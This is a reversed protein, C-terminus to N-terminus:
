IATARHAASKVPEAANGTTRGTRTTNLVVARMWLFRVCFVAIFIDTEDLGGQRSQLFWSVEPTQHKTTAQNTLDFDHAPQSLDRRYHHRISNQFILRRHPLAFLQLLPPFCPL